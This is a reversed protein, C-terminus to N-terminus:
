RQEMHMKVVKRFILFLEKYIKCDDDDVNGLIGHNALSREFNADEDGISPYWSPSSIFFLYVTLIIFVIAQIANTFFFSIISAIPSFTVCFSHLVSLTIIGPHLPFLFIGANDAFYKKGSALLQRSSTADTDDELRQAFIERAQRTATSKLSYELIIFAIVLGVCIWLITCLM